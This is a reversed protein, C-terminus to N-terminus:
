RYNERAWEILEDLRQELTEVSAGLRQETYDIRQEVTNVWDDVQLQLFMMQRKIDQKMSKSICKSFEQLSLDGSQDADMLTFLDQLDGTDLDLKKLLERLEANEAVGVKFEERTIKEDEGCIERFIQEIKKAARVKDKREQENDDERAEAAKDVIVSLILNTFGLQVTVLAGAFIIFTPWSEMVIPVTCAGWSDGAVLTQFLQIAAFFVSKFVDQCDVAQPYRDPDLRNSVPHIFEVALIASILLLFCIFVFGWLMAGVASTFGMIMMQLEPLARLIRMARALRAVRTLRLMQLSPLTTGTTEDVIFDVYGIVVVFLDFVNWPDHHFFRQYVAIRVLSELTYLGLFSYGVNVLWKKQDCNPDVLCLARQDVELVIFVINTAIVLGLMNETYQSKLVHHTARRLWSWNWTDLRSADPVLSRLCSAPMSSAPTKKYNIQDVPVDWMSVHSRTAHATAQGNSSIPDQM